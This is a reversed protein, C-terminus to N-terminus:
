AKAPVAEDPDSYDPGGLMGSKRMQDRLQTRVLKVGQLLSDGQTAAGTRHLFKALAQYGNLAHPHLAMQVAQPQLAQPLVQLLLAAFEQGQLDTLFARVAQAALQELLPGLQTVLGQSQQSLAKFEDSDAFAAWDVKEPKPGADAGEAGEAGEPAAGDLAALAALEADDPDTEVEPDAAPALPAPAPAKAPAKLPAKAAPAKAAPAKPEPAPAPAPAEQPLHDAFLTRWPAALDKALFRARGSDAVESRLRDLEFRDCFRDGEVIRQVLETFQPHGLIALPRAAQEALGTGGGKAKAIEADIRTVLWASLDSSAKGLAAIIALAQYGNQRTDLRGEPIAARVAAEATLQGLAWAALQGDLGDEALQTVLQPISAPDLRDLADADPKGDITLM